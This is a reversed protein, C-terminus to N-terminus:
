NIIVPVVVGITMIIYIVAITILIVAKSFYKNSM